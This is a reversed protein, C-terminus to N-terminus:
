APPWGPLRVAIVRGAELRAAGDLLLLDQAGLTRGGVRAPDLTFVAIRGGGPLVAPAAAVSVEPLPLGRATMVNFDESRRGGTAAASVPVDGPFAVPRLPRCDLAIGEGRLRFGPGSLVTLNREIGPFISFPGDEVVAAMSLRLRLGEPGEERWLEVTQGRGNAWPMRRYSDPTLHLMRGRGTM